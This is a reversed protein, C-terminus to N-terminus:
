LPTWRMNIERAILLLAVILAFVNAAMWSVVATNPPMVAFPLVLLHFHPPNMNLYQLGPAEEFQLDTAPSPAYMDQRDLFARTSYYFKGFDNMHLREIMVRALLMDFVLAVTSLAILVVVLASNAAPAPAKDRLRMVPM